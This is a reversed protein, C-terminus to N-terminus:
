KIKSEISTKSIIMAQILPEFRNFQSSGKEYKSQSRTTKNIISVLPPM